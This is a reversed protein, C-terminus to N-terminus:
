ESNEDSESQEEEKEPEEEAIPNGDDDLFPQSEVIPLGDEDIRNGESDIIEGNDDVYQFNENIKKGDITVYHGDKVLRLSDDVFKYKKLFKNEPLDAEWGEDVGYVMTSLKSAGELVYPENQKARYDEDDKFISEGKENKLCLSTLCDIKAAEAQAEATYSDYENREAQLMLSEMRAIRVKIALDRAESLKIGGAKLKTLHDRIEEQYSELKKQKEDNWIGQSELEADLTKRVMAGNILAQKFMKNSAMQAKATEEATPRVAYITVDNGDSDKGEIKIRNVSM